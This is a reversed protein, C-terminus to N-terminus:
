FYGKPKNTKMESVSFMKCHLSCKNDINNYKWLFVRNELPLKIISKKNTKMQRKSLVFHRSKNFRKNSVKKM